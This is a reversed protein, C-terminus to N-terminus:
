CDFIMAANPSSAKLSHDIEALTFGNYDAIWLIHIPRGEDDQLLFGSPGPKTLRRACRMLYRLTPADSANIISAEVLHERTLPVLQIGPESFVLAQPAEFLLM